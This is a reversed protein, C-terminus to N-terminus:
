KDNEYEGKYTKETPSTSIFGLAEDFARILQNRRANYEQAKKAAIYAESTGATSKMVEEQAYWCKLNNTAMEDIIMAPSKERIGALTHIYVERIWNLFQEKSLNSKAYNCRFCCTVCNELNYDKSNDVRDIGNYFIPSHKHENKRQYSNFINSPSTGCYFCDKFILDEFEQRTLNFKYNRKIANHKYNNYLNTIAVIKDSKRNKKGNESSACKNCMSTKGAILSSGRVSYIKDCKSCLCKWYINNSNKTKTDLELVKWLGFIREKLDIYKACGCSRTPKTKRTLHYVPLFVVNGCDCKCEWIYSGSNKDKEETNKIVTLKGFKQGTINLKNGM